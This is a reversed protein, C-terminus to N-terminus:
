VTTFDVVFRVAFSLQSEYLFDPSGLSHHSTGTPRSETIRYPIHNALPDHSYATLLKRLQATLERHKSSIQTQLTAATTDQNFPTSIILTLRGEYQSWQQTHTPHHSAALAQGAEHIVEIRTDALVEGSFSTFVKLDNAALLNRVGSEIQGDFDYLELETM